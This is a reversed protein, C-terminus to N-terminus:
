DRGAAGDYTVPLYPSDYYDNGDVGYFHVPGEFSRNTLRDDGSGALFWLPVSRGNYEVIVRDNGPGGSIRIFDFSSQGFTQEVGNHRVLLSSATSGHRLTVTDVAASGDITLVRDVIAALLRRSELPEIPAAGCINFRKM